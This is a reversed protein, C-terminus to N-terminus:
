LNTWQGDQITQKNDTDTVDPNCGKNAPEVDVEQNAIQDAMQFMAVKYFSM